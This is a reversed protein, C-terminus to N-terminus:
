KNKITNTYSFINQSKIREKYKINKEDVKKNLFTLIINSKFKKM